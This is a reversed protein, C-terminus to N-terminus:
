LRTMVRESGGASQSVALEPAALARTVCPIRWGSRLALPPFPLEDWLTVASIFLGTRAGELPKKRAPALDGQAAHLVIHTDLVVKV